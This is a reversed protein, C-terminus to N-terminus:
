PLKIRQGDGLEPQKAVSPMVVREGAAVGQAIEITERGRL